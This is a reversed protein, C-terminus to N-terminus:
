NDSSPLIITMSCGKGGLKSAHPPPPPTSPYLPPQPATSSGRLQAVLTGNHCVM